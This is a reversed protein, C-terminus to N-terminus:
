AARKKKPKQHKMLLPEPGANFWNLGGMDNVVTSEHVNYLTWETTPRSSQRRMNQLAAESTQARGWNFQNGIAIWWDRPSEKTLTPSPMRQESMTLTAGEETKL